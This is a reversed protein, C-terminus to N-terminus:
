SPWVPRAETRCASEVYATWKAWAELYDLEASSGVAMGAPPVPARYMVCPPTTVPVPVRVVVTRPTGCATSCLLATLTLIALRM